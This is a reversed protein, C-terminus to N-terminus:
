KFPFTQITWDDKKTRTLILKCDHPRSHSEEGRFLVVPFAYEGPSVRTGHSIEFAAGAGPSFFGQLADASAQQRASDSLMVIGTEHDESQWAHLFRNAAALASSYDPDVPHSTHRAKHAFSATSVLLLLIPVSFRMGCDEPLKIRKFLPM